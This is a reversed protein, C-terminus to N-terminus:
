PENKQMPLAQIRKRIDLIVTKFREDNVGGFDDDFKDPGLGDRLGKTDPVIDASSFKERLRKFIAEPNERITRAFAIGAFEASLCSFSLGSPRHQDFQIRGIASNEAATPTLLEGTGCGIVFRRCLDRRNRLTPNGLIALREQRENITEVGAVAGTTIPDDRLTGTDDLAVGIGLLFASIRHPEEINQVANAAAKIYAATLEDGSLAAPGTNSKARATIALVVVRVAESRRALDVVGLPEKKRPGNPNKPDPVRAVDKDLANVYDVALPDGPFAQLLASYVRFLRVRDPLPVAELQTLGSRRQDAVLNLALTNLPDLRIVYQTHLAQGDGLKARMASGPDPSAVAGLSIALYRVLVELREPEGRPRWERVVVHAAGIGRCAGFEQQADDLKQSTFGVALAGPKVKVATEFANLQALLDKSKSDSVWTDFGAFEFRFGTQKELIASAADFRKRVEDQWLKDSRPDVDDVMLTVPIKVPNRAVPNLEPRADREPPQGPLELATIRVGAVRDPILAYANALEVRVTAGKGEGPLKLDAPGTITFPLVSYAPITHTRSKEGPEAVTFAVDDQTYNAIVFVGASARAAFFCALLATLLGYRM